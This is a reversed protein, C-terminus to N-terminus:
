SDEYLALLKPSEREWAYRHAAERARERMRAYREPDALMENLTAALSTPDGPTFTLGIGGREVFRTLEPLRSAAVPLGAAMYDFLKNPTTYTNNLGVPEYPIVGITAAAACRVVEAPPVPDVIEVREELGEAAILTRLEEELRGWGMLVIRGDELGHAARVLTPLGRHPAFGGQYLVTATKGNGTGLFLQPTTDGPAIAGNGNGEPCNLLVTPRGVGYRREMEAAISDCVTLVHDARKALRGEVVRWIAAERRSLTSIEPYLEHADYTLPLRLRRALAAAVPLTNLDHAHLADPPDARVLRYARMYYDLFMLPKHLALLLRRVAHSLAAVPALAAALLVNRGRKAVPLPEASALARRWLRGGGRAARLLRYHVPRREVRVIRFGDREEEAATTADLVAFVRVGHGAATLTRAEKLVRADSSCRNYVFMDIRM